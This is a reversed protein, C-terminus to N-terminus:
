ASGSRPSTIDSVRFSAATWSFTPVNPLIRDRGPGSENEVLVDVQPQEELMPARGEGDLDRILLSRPAAELDEVLRAIGDDLDM